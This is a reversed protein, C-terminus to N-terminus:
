NIIFWDANNNIITMSSYQYLITATTSGNITETTDGDVTVADAGSDVKIITFKATNGIATPLNVTVAGGAATADVLLIIDGSTQAANYPTATVSVTTYGGSGATPTVWAGEGTTQDALTWVDGNTATALSTDNIRFTETVIEFFPTTGTVVLTASGTSDVTTSLFHSADYMMRLQETTSLINAKAAATGTGIMLKHASTTQMKLTTASGTTEVMGVAGTTSISVTSDGAANYVEIYSPTGALFHQTTGSTPSIRLTGSSLVNLDTYNSVDYGLRQQVGAFLVHLPRSPATAGIGVEGTPLITVYNEVGGAGLRTEMAAGSPYLSAHAGIKNYFFNGGYIYSIITNAGGFETDINMGAGYATGGSLQIPGSTVFYLGAVGSVGFDNFIGKSGGYTGFTIGSVSLTNTTKDYFFDTPDEGVVTGDQFLVAKDTGSTITTTGVTIGSAPAAGWSPAAANGNSTLIEGAAGYNAGADFSLAANNNFRMRENGQGDSLLIYNNLTAITSGSISGLILNYSGTTIGSGSNYGLATNFGNTSALSPGSLANHGLATNSSSVKDYYLTNYGVAVNFSGTIGTSGVSIFGTGMAGIGIATNDHGTTIGYGAGFGIGTNNYGSTVSRLGQAGIGTNGGLSSSNNTLASNGVATSNSRTGSAMASVGIKVSTSNNGTGFDASNIVLDSNFTKVGAFTQSGITVVGGFSASAPELNLTTGTLTAANANPTSGITTLTTLISAVTRYEVNKSGANWTLLNTETDDNTPATNLILEGWFQTQTHASNGLVIQNDATTYANYGIAITNIPTVKQSAHFGAMHGIFTNYQTSGVLSAGAYYGMINNGIGNSGGKANVGFYNDYIGTTNNLGSDQGFFCNEQGSTNNEGAGAGVATVKFGISNILLANVGIAVNQDGITNSFMAHYGMVTNLGGTSFGNFATSGVVTNFNSTANEGAGYGIFVNDHHISITSGSNAGVAVNKYGTTLSLLSFYGNAVNYDGGGLPDVGVMTLSGFATNFSSVNPNAANTVFGFFTGGSQDISGSSVNAVKFRLNQGDTTGIFNVAPNTGANGLISWDTGSSPLDAAELPRWGKTGAGNTSYFERNGPSTEDNVLKIGSGDSTISMQTTVSGSASVTDWLFSGGTVSLFLQGSESYGSLGKLIKLASATFNDFENFLGAAFKYFENDVCKVVAACFNTLEFDGESHIISLDANVCALASSCDLMTGCSHCKACKM